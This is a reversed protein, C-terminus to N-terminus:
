ENEERIDSKNLDNEPQKESKPNNEISKTITSVTFFKASGTDLSAAYIVVPDEVNDARFWEKGLNGKDAFIYDGTVSIDYIRQPHM